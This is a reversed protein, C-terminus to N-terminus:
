PTKVTKIGRFGRGRKRLIKGNVAIPTGDGNVLDLYFAKAEKKINFEKARSELDEGFTTQGCPREGRREVFQQYSNYLVTTFAGQARPDVVVCEEFWEKMVDQESLYEETAATVSPPPNLGQQQWDRCGAIMKSLIGPAEKVWKQKILKDEEGIVINVLWPIMNVRRRWATSVASLRPRHNGEFMLKHTQEFEYFDKRMKRARMRGGGTLKKVRAESFRSGRENESATILRSGDLITLETPHDHGTNRATFMEMPAEQAYDGWIIRILELTTTKGANGDGYNFFLADERVDGTLCYGWGRYMYAIMEADGAFARHLHADWVPTDCSADPTVGAMKTCYDKLDHKRMTGDRLNVVGGPTNLLWIDKDWQDTTAAVHRDARAIHEAGTITANKLLSRIESNRNTDRALEMCITKIADNVALTKEEQWRQGDWKLWIGWAAVYRFTDGHRNVFIEAIRAESPHSPAHHSDVLDELGTIRSPQKDNM